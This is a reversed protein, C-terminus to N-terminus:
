SVLDLMPWSYQGILDCRVGGRGGSYNKCWGAPRLNALLMAGPALSLTGLLSIM